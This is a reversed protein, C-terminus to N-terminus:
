QLTVVRYPGILYDFTMPVKEKMDKAVPERNEYWHSILFFIANKLPQPVAESNGYGAIFRVTVGSAPQLTVSPWIKNYGLVVRGPVSAGDVIYDNSDFVHEVGLSDKYKISVVSQLKPKRVAIKDSCPFSDLILDWTQTVFARSTREEAIMRAATILGAIYSDDEDFDVRLHSKAEGLTIPEETPETVLSLAWNEKSM